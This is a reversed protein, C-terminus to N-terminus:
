DGSGMRERREAMDELYAREKEAYVAFITQLDPNVQFRIGRGPMYGRPDDCYLWGSECLINLIGKKTWDPLTRWKTWGHAIWAADIHEPAKALIKGALYRVYQMLEGGGGIIENYVKSAHPYLCERMFNSVRQATAESIEPAIFANHADACEIAHYTLCFEAFFDNFKSLHSRLADNFWDPKREDYAWQRFDLRVQKAADSFQVPGSHQLHYLREVIDTMRAYDPHMPRDLDLTAERANYINFRQLFGNSTLDHSKVIKRLRDPQTGGVINAGFESIMTVIGKRDVSHRGGDRLKLFEEIDSGGKKYQNAGTVLGVLEDQFSLIGRGGQEALIDPYVEGTANKLILRNRAPAEPEEPATAQDGKARASIYAQRQKEYIEKDDKHKKQKWAVEAMLKEQLDEFPRAMAVLIPSKNSGSFGNIILWLRAAKLWNSESKVQIQIYNPLAGACIGIGFLGFIGPDAGWTEAEQCFLDALAPPMWEHRMEPVRTEAWFDAPDAWLVNKPKAYVRGALGPHYDVTPPELAEQYAEPPPLDYPESGGLGDLADAPPATHADLSADTAPDGESSPLAADPPESNQEDINATVLEVINTSFEAKGSIWELMQKFDWEQEVMEQATPCFGADLNLLKVEGFVALERGWARAIAVDDRSPWLVIPKGSIEALHGNKASELSIVEYTAGAIVAAAEVQAADTLILFRM